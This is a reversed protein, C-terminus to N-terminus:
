NHFEENLSVGFHCTIARNAGDTAAKRVSHNMFHSFTEM